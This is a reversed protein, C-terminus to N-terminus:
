TSRRARRQPARPRRKGQESVFRLGMGLLDRLADKHVRSLRVVVCPYPVYHDTLYYIGPDSAVLEDRDAFPMRIVLSGPASSSHMTMCAFMKGGVKLAPAGYATGLEVGPLALGIRRVVEFASADGATRNIAGEATRRRRSATSSRM